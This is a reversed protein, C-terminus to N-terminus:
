KASDPVARMVVFEVFKTNPELAFSIQLAGVTVNLFDNSAANAFGALGSRRLERQADEATKVTPHLAAFETELRSQKWNADVSPTLSGAFAQYWATHDSDWKRTLHVTLTSLHQGPDQQKPRFWFSLGQLHYQLQPGTIGEVGPSVASPRGVADTIADLTWDAIPRGNLTGARLDVALPQSPSQAKAAGLTTLMLPVLVARCVARIQYAQFIM